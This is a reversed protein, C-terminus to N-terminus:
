NLVSAYYELEEGDIGYMEASIVDKLIDYLRDVTQNLTYCQQYEAVSLYSDELEAFYFAMDGIRCCLGICGGFEDELSILGKELGRIIKEKTIM